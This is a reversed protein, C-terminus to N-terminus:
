RRDSHIMRSYIASTLLYFLLYIFILIGCSIYALWYGASSVFQSFIYIAFTAHLVGIIMPPFFIISNQQYILKTIERNPVGMRKLLNYETKEREGEFLQRLMLISGTIFLALIGVFMAVYVYLGMERRTYRLDPYRSSYNLQWNEGRNATIGDTPKETEDTKAPEIQTVSGQLKQGVVRYDYFVPSQWDPTVQKAVFDALGEEDNTKVNFATIKYTFDAKVKEYQQDSVIMTSSGYRMMDQGLFDPRFSQVTLTTGDALSVKPQYHIFGSLINQISDMYIANNESTLHIDKLHPNILQYKKYDSLAVLNVTEVSQEVDDQGIKLHFLGGTLKYKLTASEEISTQPYEEIKGSLKQYTQESAIFDTPDTVDVSHVGLTYIFAALGIMGLAIAILLTVSSLTNNSKFIHLKTNGLTLMNLNKYYARKNQGLLYVFLYITYKFFLYTGLVCSVFILLPCILLGGMGLSKYLLVTTVYKINYSALYGLLILVIGLIGLFIRPKTLLERQSIKQQEQQFLGALPYRWIMWASRVSVVILMFAFIVSTQFMSAFSLYFTSTVKLFMAKVLIMSFLKSFIVGLVLGSILSIVGLLLTEVFFLLSVQGKRMGVLRYLGIEKSRKLLFFRNAALMFGLIIVIVLIGGFSMAGAIQVDQGARRVLPQNYAIASFCYYVMVAFTMSIFYILYNRFQAKFSKFSLSFIM